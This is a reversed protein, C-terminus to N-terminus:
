LTEVTSVIPTDRLGLLHRRPAGPGIVRGRVRVICSVRGHAIMGRSIIRSVTGGHLLVRGGLPVQAGFSGVGSRLGQDIRRDISRPDSRLTTREAMAADVGSPTMPRRVHRSAWATIRASERAVARRVHMTTPSTAATQASHRVPM